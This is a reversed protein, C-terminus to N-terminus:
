SATGTLGKVVDMRWWLRLSVVGHRGRRGVDHADVVPDAFLYSLYSGVKAGRAAVRGSARARLLVAMWQCEDRRCPEKPTMKSPVLRSLLWCTAMLNTRKWPGSCLWPAAARKRNPGVSFGPKEYLFWPLAVCRLQPVLVPRVLNEHAATLPISKEVRM